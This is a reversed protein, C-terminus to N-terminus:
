DFWEDAPDFKPTCIVLVTMQGVARHRCGPRIVVCMGPRVPILEEDLQMRAAPTCELFYYTETLRKHYHLRADASIETRHVTAPYDELDVFARRASGCPCDIPPIQTLDAVEFRRAIASSM